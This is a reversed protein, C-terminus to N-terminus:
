HLGHIDTSSHSAETVGKQQEIENRFSFCCFFKFSHHFFTVIRVHIFASNAFVVHCLLIAVTFHFFAVDFFCDSKFFEVRLHRTM